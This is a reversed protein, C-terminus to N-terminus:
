KLQDPRYTHYPHRMIVYVLSPHLPVLSKYVHVVCFCVFARTAIQKVNPPGKDAVIVITKDDVGWYDKIALGPTDPYRRRLCVSLCIHSPTQIM